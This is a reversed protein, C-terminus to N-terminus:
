QAKKTIILIHERTRTTTAFIYVDGGDRLRLRKRLQDSTLPFNRVAINAQTLGALVKRLEKKNMTAVAKIHFVRGPFSSFDANKDSTVFLHSNPALAQLGFSACLEAFCGAKMISSNPVFLLSFSTSLLSSLSISQPSNLAPLHIHTSSAHSAQPSFDPEFSFREDDNACVVRLPSKEEQSLVLLLEKCENATSVIHVERVCDLERVAEHWDLMPSLKIILWQCKALLAPCLQAVDPTCDSISYTKRGHEDRRAPDIYLLTTYKLRKQFDIADINQVEVHSLGLLQFNHKATECLHAQQEVYTAHHFLPALFSFDVGFGGTLDAMTSELAKDKNTLGSAQLLRSALTQKYLATQESSCQEMSIHPPFIIGDHEAWSPLKRRATQWGRIQDLAWPMDVEPHKDGLFALQRVDEQRHIRTFELTQANKEM